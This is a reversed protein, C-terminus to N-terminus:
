QSGRVHEEVYIMAINTLIQLPVVVAVIRKDKDTLFPKFLSWGTGILLITTFMVVGKLFTFIYYAVNWGHAEVDVKQMHFKIAEFFVSLLKCVLVLTMMYHIKKVNEGHTFLQHSWVALVVM